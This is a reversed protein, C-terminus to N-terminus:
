FCAGTNAMLFHTIFSTMRFSPFAQLPMLSLEDREKCRGQRGPRGTGSICIGPEVPIHTVGARRVLGGAMPSNQLFLGACLALAVMCLRALHASPWRLASVWECNSRVDECPLCGPGDSPGPCLPVCVQGVHSTGVVCDYQVCLGMATAPHLLAHLKFAGASATIRRTCVLPCGKLSQMYGSGMQTPLQDKM